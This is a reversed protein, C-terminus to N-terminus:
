LTKPTNEIKIKLYNIQFNQKYNVYIKNFVCHQMIYIINKNSKM